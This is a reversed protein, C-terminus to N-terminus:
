EIRQKTGCLRCWSHGRLNQGGICSNGNTGAVNRGCYNSNVQTWVFHFDTSTCGSCSGSVFVRSTSQCCVNPGIDKCIREAGYCRPRTFQSLTVG